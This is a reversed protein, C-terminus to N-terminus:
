ASGACSRRGYRRPGARRWRRFGRGSGDRHIDFNCGFNPTNWRIPYELRTTRSQVRARRCSIPVTPVALGVRWQPHTPKGLRDCRFVASHGGRATERPGGASALAPFGDPPAMLWAISFVTSENVSGPRVLNARNSVSPQESVPIPGPALRRPETAKASRRQFLFFFARPRPRM